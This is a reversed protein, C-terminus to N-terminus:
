LTLYSEIFTNLGKESLDKLNQNLFHPIIQNSINFNSPHQRQM